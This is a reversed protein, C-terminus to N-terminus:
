RTCRDKWGIPWEGMPFIAWKPHGRVRQCGEDNARRIRWLVCAGSVLCDAAIHTAHEANVGGNM